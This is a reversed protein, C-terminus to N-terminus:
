KMRPRLLPSRPHRMHGHWLLPKSPSGATHVRLSLVPNIEQRPLLKQLAAAVSQLMHALTSSLAHPPPHLALGTHGAAADCHGCISARRYPIGTAQAFGHHAIRHVQTHTSCGHQTM